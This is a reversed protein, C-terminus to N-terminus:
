LAVCKNNVCEKDTECEGCMLTGGCADSLRGCEANASTCTVPSCIKIQGSNSGENGCVDKVKISLDFSGYIQGSPLNVMSASIARIDNDSDPVKEVKLRSYGSQWRWGKVYWDSWNATLYLSDWDVACQSQVLFYDKFPAGSKSKWAGFIISIPKNEVATIYKDCRHEEPLGKFPTEFNTCLKYRKAKADLEYYMALSGEPLVPNKLNTAFNKIREDWCTIPDFNDPCSGLRNVPDVPLRYGLEAGLTENWSPWVSITKDPLYSGSPLSPYKQNKILYNNFAVRMERLDSMRKVDRVLGAKVSSCYQGNPCDSTLLCKKVCVKNECSYDAFNGTCGVAPDCPEAGIPSCVGPGTREVLEINFKWYSLIQGFIDQTDNEAEQNYSIIYINTYITANDTNESLNAASVYVTRGDRVAEYGDVILSQPAGKVNVNRNYWSLPSFHETNPMVRIAIADPSPDDVALVPLCFLGITLILFCFLIKKTALLAM